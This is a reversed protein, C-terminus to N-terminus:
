KPYVFPLGSEAQQQIGRMARKMMGRIQVKVFLWTLPYWVRHRAYYTYTYSVDVRRDTRPQTRWEGVGKEVFFLSSQTMDYVVWQWYTNEDRILIKDTFVRGGTLLGNGRVVPYRIGGVIGWTEDEEFGVVPPQLLYGDLFRTADGLIPAQFARELSCDFTGFVTTKVVMDRGFLGTEGKKLTM